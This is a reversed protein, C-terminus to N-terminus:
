GQHNPPRRWICRPMVVPPPVGLWGGFDDSWDTVQIIGSLPLMGLAHWHILDPQTHGQDLNVRDVWFNSPQMKWSGDLLWESLQHGTWDPLSCHIWLVTIHIRWTLWSSRPLMTLGSVWCRFPFHAIMPSWHHHHYAEVLELSSSCHLVQDSQPLM